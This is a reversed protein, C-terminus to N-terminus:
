HDLHPVMASFPQMAILPGEVPELNLEFTEKGLFVSEEQNSRM